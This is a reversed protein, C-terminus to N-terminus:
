EGTYHNLWTLLSIIENGELGDEILHQLQVLYYVYCLKSQTLASLELGRKSQTLTSLELRVKSLTL